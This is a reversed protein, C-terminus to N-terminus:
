QRKHGVEPVKSRRVNLVGSLIVLLMGTFVIWSPFPDGLLTGIGLAFIVQVYNLAGLRGAKDWGLAITLFLQGMAAFGGLLLLLFLNDFKPVVFDSTIVEWGERLGMQYLLFSILPLVVGGSMFSLVIVRSDYFQRLKGISLLAMAAFLGCGVGALHYQIPYDGEPRFILVIGLFGVGVSIWEKLNLRQGPIFATFVALYIPYALNYTNAEGLGIHTINYFLLYLAATGILGRFVLLGPLGGKQIPPKRILAPVIFLLGILNRFFVLEIASYDKSLYKATGGMLAFSMATLLIM